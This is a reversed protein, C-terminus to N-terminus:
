TSSGRAFTRDDRVIRIGLLRGHGGCGGISSGKVIEILPFVEQFATILFSLRLCFEALIIGLGLGAHGLEIAQVM